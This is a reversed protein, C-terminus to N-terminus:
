SLEVFKISYGIWVRTDCEYQNIIAKYFEIIMVIIVGIEMEQIGM